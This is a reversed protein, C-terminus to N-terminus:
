IHWVLSGHYWYINRMTATGWPIDTGFQLFLDEVTDSIHSSVVSPAHHVCRRLLDM